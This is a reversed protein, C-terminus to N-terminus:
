PRQRRKLRGGRRRRDDDETEPVSINRKCGEEEKVGKESYSQSGENSVKLQIKGEELCGINFHKQYEEKFCKVKFAM